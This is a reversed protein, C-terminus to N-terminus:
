RDDDHTVHRFPLFFDNQSRPRNISTSSRTYKGYLIQHVQSLLAFISYRHFDPITCPLLQPSFTTDYAVGKEKSPLSLIVIMM